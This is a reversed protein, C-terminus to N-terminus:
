MVSTAECDAAEIAVADASGGLRLMCTTASSFTIAGGAGEGGAATGGDGPMQAAEGDGPLEATGGNGPMQAAEGGAMAPVDVQGTEYFMVAVGVRGGAIPWTSQVNSMFEYDSIAPMAGDQSQGFATMQAMRSLDRGTLSLDYTGSPGGTLVFSGSMLVPADEAVHENMWSAIGQWDGAGVAEEADESVAELFSRADDETLGQADDQALAGTAMAVAALGATTIAKTFM